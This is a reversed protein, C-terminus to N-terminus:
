RPYDYRERGRGSCNRLEELTCGKTLEREESWEQKIDALLSQCVKLKSTPPTLWWAILCAVVCGIIFRAWAQAAETPPNPEAKGDSM